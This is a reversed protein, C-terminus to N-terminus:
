QGPALVARFGLVFNRLDPAGLARDASRCYWTEIYWGGGRVVHIKGTGPGLPDSEPSTSYYRSSYWDWCWEYVNGAMDYLGYGNPAFSGVPSTWPWGGTAYTPHHGNTPSTDYAYHTSSDYNARSHTIEDTDSWPFRRGEAGGRAAKEWEAETPLRYGAGWKVWDNQVDVRGKRYVTSHSADTQYAPVRGEKESRANCWKVVDYWNVSHVPHDAGKGSGANDFSYGNRTAWTHVEDWLAKTVEYRDMYFASVNVTHVPLEDDDGESFTDGMQFPGAPIMAMGEPPPPPGAQSLRYFKSSGTAPTIFPSSPQPQVVTWPGDVAGAEELVGSGTWTLTIEGDALTPQGFELTEGAAAQASLVILAILSATVRGCISSRGPLCHAALKRLLQECVSMRTISNM